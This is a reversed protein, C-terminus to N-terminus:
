WVYYVPKMTHHDEDYDDERVIESKNDKDDERTIASELIAPSMGSM